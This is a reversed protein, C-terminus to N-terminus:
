LIEISCDCFTRMLVVSFLTSQFMQLPLVFAFIISMNKIHHCTPCFPMTSQPPDLPLTRPTRVGEQSSVKTKMCVYESKIKEVEGDTVDNKSTCGRRLFIRSRGRNILGLYCLSSNLTRTRMGLQTFKSRTAM